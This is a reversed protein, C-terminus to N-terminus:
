LVILLKALYNRIIQTRKNTGIGKLDDLFGEGESVTKSNLHNRTTGKGKSANRMLRKHIRKELVLYNLMNVLCKINNFM